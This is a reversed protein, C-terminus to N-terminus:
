KPTMSDMVEMLIFKGYAHHVGAHTHENSCCTNSSGFSVLLCFTFSFCFCFSTCLRASFDPLITPNFVHSSIFHCRTIRVVRPRRLWTYSWLGFCLRRIVLSTQPSLFPLPASTCHPKGFFAFLSISMIRISPDTADSSPSHLTFRLRIVNWLSHTLDHFYRPIM